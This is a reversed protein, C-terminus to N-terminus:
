FIGPHYSPYFGFCPFQEMADSESSLQLTITDINYQVTSFQFGSWSAEVVDPDSRLVLTIEVSPPSDLGRLEPILERGVNGISLKATPTADDEQPLVVSIPLFQYSHGNSVVGYVVDDDTESIRKTYGNAIRLTSSLGGGSIVFLVIFDDSTEPSLVTTVAASSLTRSM